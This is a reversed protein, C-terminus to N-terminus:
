RRDKPILKAEMSFLTNMRGDGVGDFSVSM